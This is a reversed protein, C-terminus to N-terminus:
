PTAPAHGAGLKEDVRKLVEDTADIATISLLIARKDLVAVAGRSVMVEGIIPFAAEGFAKREADERTGLDRAKNDQTERIKNVKADFADALKRFDDAPMTPRQETLKKEEATLDAEIRDNEAQLARSATEIDSRVRQGWLSKTYLAEQDITLIAVPGGPGPAQQAFLPMAATGAVILAALLAAKAGGRM